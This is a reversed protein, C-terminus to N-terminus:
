VDYKRKKDQRKKETAIEKSVFRRVTFNLRPATDANPKKLIAHNFYRQMEGVMILLDGSLLTIEALLLGGKKGNGDIKDPASSKKYISFERAKLDDELYTYSFIPADNVLQPEDDSHGAVSSQADAYYNAHVGKYDEPEPFGMAKAIQQTHQRVDTVLKPWSETEAIHPYSAYKETAFTCQKRPVPHGFIFQQPVNNSKMYEVAENFDETTTPLANRILIVSSDCHDTGTAKDLCYIGTPACKTLESRTYTNLPPQHPSSM